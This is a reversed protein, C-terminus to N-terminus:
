PCVSNRGVCFILKLNKSSFFCFFHLRAFFIDSYTHRMTLFCICDRAVQVEFPLHCWPGGVGLLPSPFSFPAGALHWSPHPPSASLSFRPAYEQM